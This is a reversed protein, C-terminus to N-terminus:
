NIVLAENLGWLGAQQRIHHRKWKIFLQRSVKYARVRRINNRRRKKGVYKKTVEGVVSNKESAPKRWIDVNVYRKWKGYRVECSTNFNCGVSFLSDTM